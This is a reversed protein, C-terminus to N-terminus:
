NMVYWESVILDVTKLITTWYLGLKRTVNITTMYIYFGWTIFVEFSLAYVTTASIFSSKLRCWKNIKMTYVFFLWLLMVHNCVYIKFNKKRCSFTVEKMLAHNIKVYVINLCDFTDFLHFKFLPFKHPFNGIEWSPIQTMQFLYYILTKYTFWAIFIYYQHRGHAM